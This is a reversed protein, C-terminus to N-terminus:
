CRRAAMSASTRSASFRPAWYQMLAVISLFIAGALTIRTMVKDLYQTTDKGPRIGPIFANWKKLNDSMEPINMMVATYFYTFFIIVVFYILRPWWAGCPSTRHSRGAPVNRWSRALQGPANVFMQPLSLLAMAFIIPM